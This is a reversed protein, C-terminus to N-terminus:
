ASCFQSGVVRIVGANDNDGGHVAAEHRYRTGISHHDFAPMLVLPYLLSAAHETSQYRLHSEQRPVPLSRMVIQM